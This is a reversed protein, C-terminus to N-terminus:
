LMSRIAYTGIALVLGIKIATQIHFVWFRIGVPEGLWVAHVSHDKVNGYTTNPHVLISFGGRNKKLWEIVDNVKAISKPDGGFMEFMPMPHPSIRGARDNWRGEKLWDFRAMLKRKLTAAKEKDNAEFYVHVDFPNKGALFPLSTDM